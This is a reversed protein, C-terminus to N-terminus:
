KIRYEERVPGTTHSHCIAVALGDAADDPRPFDNLRLLARVMHQVQHKDAHGNGTVALKIQMPTYEYLPLGSQQASLIAVGRGAGVQIATTVNRRFFLEEFAVQSPRYKEILLATGSHLRELRQPFSSHASTEIIGYDVVSLGTSLVEIVGYGLIAYGPDIGLVIM